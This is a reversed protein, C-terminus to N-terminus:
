VLWYYKELDDIAIKQALFGQHPMREALNDGIFIKLAFEIVQNEHIGIDALPVGLEVIQRVGVLGCPRRAAETGSDDVTVQEYVLKKRRTDKVMRYFLDGPKRFHIEIRFPYKKDNLIATEVDLRIYLNHHDFGFHFGNFIKHVQQMTTFAYQNSFYGAALWEFYDTIFGDLVPTLLEFPRQVKFRSVKQIIPAALEDPPQLGLQRWAKELHARFLQDFERDYESFHDEGYWWFWDSGEAVMVHELARQFDRRRAADDAPLTLSVEALKKRTAALLDWGRNKEPHGVWTSFSGFIWSGARVKPLVPAAEGLALHESFSVAKLFPSRELRAYLARLFPVGNDAYHEWANEGDLIIPVAFRRADDPLLKRILLLRSVLDDAAAEGDYTSYTFGIMDSLLHDRFFIHVSDAADGCRYPLYKREPLFPDGERLLGSRRLSAHLIEEDTAVWRIGEARAIALMEESVSGESPWMGAPRAGFLRQHARVAQQVHWVADEPHHFDHRPLEINPLAERASNIDCLLPLIPHYYPSTSVEVQGRAAAAQYAPLVQGIFRRQAELLRRKDAESFNRGESLLTQIEPSQQLRHGCWALNFWVQLDRYDPETFLATKERLKDLDGVHGRKEFLEKYRAYPQVMQDFNLSFFNKLLFLRDDATLEAAPKLSLDLFPDTADRDAYDQIQEMLSPVLNFTVHVGPFDALVDVMDYYDKLAHLRVWPLLFGGDGVGKYIPQHMHWLILVHLPDNRKPQIEMSDM